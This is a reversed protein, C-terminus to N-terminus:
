KTSKGCNSCFNGYVKNGCYACYGNSKKSEFIGSLESNFTSSGFALIPYFIIPLLILGVIFGTDKNFKKGLNIAIFIPVVLTIPPIFLLIIMWLPLDLVEILIITNYIPIISEFGERGLKKFLVWRYIARFILLLFIIFLAILAIELITKVLSESLNDLFPIEYYFNM